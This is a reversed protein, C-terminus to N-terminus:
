VSVFFFILNEVEKTGLRIAGNGVLANSSGCQEHAHIWGRLDAFSRCYALYESRSMSIASLM